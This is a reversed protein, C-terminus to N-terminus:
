PMAGESETMVAGEVGPAERAVVHPGRSCAALSQCLKMEPRRQRAALPHELRWAEM